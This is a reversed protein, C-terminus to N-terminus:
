GVASQHQNLYEAAAVLLDPRDRFEGLGQNCRRCLLQRVADTAHDHDVCLRQGTPCVERCIACVGSQEEFMASYQAWTIGYRSKYHHEAAREPHAANWERAKRRSRERNNERWKASSLRQCERCRPQRGDPSKSYKNFGELPLAERCGNCVKM